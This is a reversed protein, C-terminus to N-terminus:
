HRHWHGRSFHWGHGHHWWHAPAWAYGYRPREWRGPVWAYGYGPQLGWYGGVWFHVPSPAAPVAELRVAPPAVEV